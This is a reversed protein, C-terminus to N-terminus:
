DHREETDEYDEPHAGCCPCPALALAALAAREFVGCAERLRVNEIREAALKGKTVCLICEKDQEPHGEVMEAGCDECRPWSSYRRLRKNEDRAAALDAEAREAREELPTAVM